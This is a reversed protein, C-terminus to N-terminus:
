KQDETYPTLLMEIKIAQEEDVQMILLKPPEIKYDEMNLIWAAKLLLGESVPQLTGSIEVEKTVGHIKFDGKVTVNQMSKNAYDFPVLLSGYFEAFPYEDTELTILMDKDRKGNGTDLTELDLYFDVVNDTLNIMGTLNESKGDFSHLPVSSTFIAKGEESFFTQALTTTSLLLLSAFLTITKMNTIRLVKM